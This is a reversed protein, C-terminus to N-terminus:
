ACNPLQVVARDGPGLGLRRLRDALNAAQRAIQGYSFQHAGDIVAIADPRQAAQIDLARTLPQDIWYGRARYHAALEPPFRTFEIPM